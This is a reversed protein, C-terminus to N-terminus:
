RPKGELDPKRGFTHHCPYLGGKLSGVGLLSKIQWNAQDLEMGSHFNSKVNMLFGTYKGKHM